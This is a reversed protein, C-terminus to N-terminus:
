RPPAVTFGAGLDGERRLRLHDNKFATCPLPADWCQMNQPEQVVLGTALTVADTATGRAARLRAARHRAAGELPAPVDGHARARRRGAGVRECTGAALCTAPLAIWVSQAALVWYASAPYRARPANAICYAISGLTPVLV